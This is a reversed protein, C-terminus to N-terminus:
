RSRIVATTTDYKGDTRRARDIDSCDLGALRMDRASLTTDFCRLRVLVELADHTVKQGKIVTAVTDKVTAVEHEIKAMRASPSQQTWGLWGVVVIVAYILLRWEAFKANLQHLIPKVGSQDTARELPHHELDRTTRREPIM